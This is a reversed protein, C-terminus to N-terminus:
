DAEVKSLDAGPVPQAARKTAILFGIFMLAAALLEGLYLFGGYGLRTLTSALSISLAGVAILINGWMRNPLVRKLWFLWSSYIAGGVLTVLGYINFLPTMARPWAGSPMIEQYQDALSIETSFVSADLPLTLVGYAGIMSLVALAVFAIHAAKRRALLYVTGQGIWAANLMAGFLYWFQFVLSNWAVVSFAEAFSGIGFMSLGIAWVLLYPQRRSWWRGIVALVFALMVASSLFPLLQDVTM